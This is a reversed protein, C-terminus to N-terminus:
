KKAPVVLGNQTRNKLDESRSMKRSVNAKEGGENLLEMRYQQGKGMKELDPSQLRRAETLSWNCAAMYAKAAEDHRGEDSLKVALAEKETSIARAVEVMVSRNMSAAILARDSSRRAVANSSAREETGALANGYIVEATAVPLDTDAPGAPLEVEILVYKQQQAYIQNMDVVVEQGQIEAPRGLVRVPRVGPACKVHVSLRQAVVSLIDGFESQFTDALAESDKIFAHNGDSRLALETMLDENYGLGLGLTTVSIGEKALSAGLRGLEQPSDPGINAMGDSLLVIRNVQDPRKNRRLEESGKSVGAFLATSGSAQIKDIAAKVAEREALGSAPAIVHVGSDYAIVSVMDKAGLRDLAQKAAERAHAMKAGSMSGSKDIVIAVNVPARNSDNEMAQGTLAVKLYTTVKQDALIQPHALDVALQV